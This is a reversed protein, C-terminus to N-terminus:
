WRAPWNASAEASTKYLPVIKSYINLRILNSEFQKRTDISKLGFLKLIDPSGKHPDVSFIEVGYGKMSGQALCYTSKGQYSGIEVICSEIPCRQAFLFLCSAEDPFLWGEITNVEDHFKLPIM